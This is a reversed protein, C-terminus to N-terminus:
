PRLPKFAMPTEGPAYPPGARQPIRKGMVPMAQRQGACKAPKRCATTTRRRKMRQVASWHFVERDTGANLGSRHSKLRKAPPWQGEALDFREGASHQLVVVRVRRAVAIESRQLILRPYHVSVQQATACRALGEAHRAVPLGQGIVPAVESKLEYQEGICDVM